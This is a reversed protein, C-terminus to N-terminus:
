PADQLPHEALFALTVANFQDPYQSFPLHGAGEFVHLRAGPIQAHVAQNYAPLTIVDHSGYTILTPATIAGLRGRADHDLHRTTAPWRTPQRTTPSSCRKV